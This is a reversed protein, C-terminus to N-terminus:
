ASFPVVSSDSDDRQPTSERSGLFEVKDAKVETTKVEQGSDNTYVRTQLRGEVYVQRGKSLFSLCNTATNGFVVVHHWETSKEWQGDKKVKDHTALSFTAMPTDNQTTISKPDKGLNGVLIVKNVSM